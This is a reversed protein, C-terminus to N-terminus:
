PAPPTLPRVRGLLVDCAAMGLGHLPRFSRHRTGRVIARLPLTLMRGAYMAIREWQNRALKGVILMHARAMHYEYFISGNKSGASSEHHVRADSAILRIGNRSCRAGLEFDEGYFFFDEDLLASGALDPAVLLCCGGLHPISGGLPRRTFLALHPQYWALSSFEGTPTVLIPAVLAKGGSEMSHSLLRSCTGQEVAADNNLLLVYVAGFRERVLRLGINVGKAFGLNAGPEFVQLDMGERRLPASSTLLLRLSSGGDESNDILLVRDICDAALSELCALTRAHDRFHLVLAVIGSDDVAKAAVSM